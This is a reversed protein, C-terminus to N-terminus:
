LIKIYFTNSGEVPVCYKKNLEPGCSHSGVGRLAVDLSVYAADPSPLDYNHMSIEISEKSYPLISFSFPNDASVIIDNTSVYSCYYRSGYDQPKLYPMNNQNLAICYKGIKCSNHKDIYSEHPGFGYYNFNNNSVDLAFRLGVRQLPIDDMLKYSLKIQLIDNQIDIKYEVNLLLIDDFDYFDVAFVGNNERKVIKKANKIRGLVKGDHMENDISARTINLTIPEKLINNEFGLYTVEGDENIKIKLQKSKNTSIKRKKFVLKPEVFKDSYIAKVEYASSKLERFPTVLGDCCFNGDNHHEPFDSGYKMKGDVTVVHDCWEWVFAGIIRDTSNILDWYDKVDGCSNGMAHTYECLLLPRTEKPDNLYHEKIYDVSPYMMSCIDIRKTYYDSKDVLNFIGEYHIPRTDHSHIYDAGDYFMKGWNSENGLSWIIVCTRNKDREYLSTERDLIASDYIGNNAFDQWKQLSYEKGAAGHSEVDAEDVVYIGLVDCLEYFEPIDPYHSTRIANANISKILRLDTLTSGVSVTAGNLYHSEHRNVGKLKLHKGNILFVGDIIEVKRLGVRELIKESNTEIVIDYLHPNEASWLKPNKIEIEITQNPNVSYVHNNFNLSLNTFSLNEFRFYWKKDINIPTIKYDWIYDSPRNLLYVDRFIGSFRFKDQDELYSSACWKLVLVDFTNDGNILYDSINFESKSHSIQSYGVYKGNVFLYFASDVGEFVIFLRRPNYIRITKRYHFVPNEKPVFPPNFPFPYIHNTYQYYDYGRCQVCSPVDIQDNLSCHLDTVESISGHVGFDWNGNLSIYESSSDKDIIGNKFAFSDEKAFPIYHSRFSCTNVRKTEEILKTNILKNM